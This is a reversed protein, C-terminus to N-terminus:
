YINSYFFYIYKHIIVGNKISKLILKRWKQLWFVYSYKIDACHLKIGILGNIQKQM